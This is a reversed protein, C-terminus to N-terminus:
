ALLREITNANWLLAPAGQPPDAATGLCTASVQWLRQAREALEESVTFIARAEAAVSRDARHIIDRVIKGHPHSVLNGLSRDWDAYAPSFLELLLLV